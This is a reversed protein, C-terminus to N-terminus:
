YINSYLGQTESLKKYKQKYKKYKNKYGGLLAPYRQYVLATKTGGLSDNMTKILTTLQPDLTMSKSKLYDTYKDIDTMIPAIPYRSYNKTPIVASENEPTLNLYNLVDGKQINNWYMGLLYDELPCNNLTKNSIRNARCSGVIITIYKNPFISRLYNIIISLKIQNPHLPTKNFSPLDELRTHSVPSPIIDFVDLGKPDSKFDKNIISKVSPKTSRFNSGIVDEVFKHPNLIEVDGEEFHKQSTNSYYKYKGEHLEIRPVQRKQEKNFEEQTLNRFSRIFTMSLRFLGDRFPDHVSSNSLWIDPCKRLSVDKFQNNERFKVKDLNGSFVCFGSRDTNYWIDHQFINEYPAIHVVEAESGYVPNIRLANLLQTGIKNQLINEGIIGIGTHALATTEQRSFTTTGSGCTMIIRVNEPLNFSEVDECGHAELSFEIYGPLNDVSQM